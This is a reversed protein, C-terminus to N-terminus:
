ATTTAWGAKDYNKLESPISINNKGATLTTSQKYVYFTTAVNSGILSNGNNIEYWYFLEVKTLKKENFTYIVCHEHEQADTYYVGIVTTKGKTSMRYEVGEGFSSHATVNKMSSINVNGYGISLPGGIDISAYSLVNKTTTKPTATTVKYPITQAYVYQKSNEVDAYTAYKYKWGNQNSNMVWLAEKTGSVTLTASASGKQTVKKGLVKTTVKISDSMTAKYGEEFESKDIDTLFETVATAEAASKSISDAKPAAKLGGGGGCATMVVAVPMIMVALVLTLLSKKFKRM